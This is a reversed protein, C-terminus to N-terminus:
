SKLMPHDWPNELEAPWQAKEKAGEICFECGAETAKEDAVYCFGKRPHGTPPLPNKNGKCDHHFISCQRLEEGVAQWFGCLKCMCYEPVSNQTYGMYGLLKCQPCPLPTRLINFLFDIKWQEETYIRNVKQFKNM